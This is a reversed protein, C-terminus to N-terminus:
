KNITFYGFRSQIWPFFFMHGILTGLFKAMFDMDMFIPERWKFYFGIIYGISGGLLMFVFFVAQQKFYYSFNM